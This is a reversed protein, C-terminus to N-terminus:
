GKSLLPACMVFRGATGYSLPRERTPRRGYDLIRLEDPETGNMGGDTQLVYLGRPLATGELLTPGDLSVITRDAGVVRLTGERDVHFVDGARYSESESVDPLYITGVETAHEVVAPASPAPAAGEPKDLSPRPALALVILLAAVLLVAIGAVAATLDRRNM